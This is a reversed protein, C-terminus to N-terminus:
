SAEEPLIVELFEQRQIPLIISFCTNQHQSDIFIEGDHKEIIRKSISLGLGTGEGANKTTYFPELIKIAEEEDIGNGCDIVNIRVANNYYITEVRIWKSCSDDHTKIADFANNLLNLFVQSIQVPVCKLIVEEKCENIILQVGENQFRNRCLIKSDNIIKSLSTQKFPLNKGDQSISKMGMIIESIRDVMDNIKNSVNHVDDISSIRKFKSNLMKIVALPNNIEHAVGSAMEGLSALKSTALLKSQQEKIQKTRRVVREELEINLKKINKEMKRKQRIYAFAAVLSAFLSFFALLLVIFEIKYKSMLYSISRPANLFKVDNFNIRKADLRYRNFQIYDFVIFRENKLFPGNREKNFYKLLNKGSIIGDRYYDKVYGGLVGKDLYSTELSYIPASSFATLKEVFSKRDDSSEGPLSLESGIMLIKNKNIKEVFLFAEENDKFNIPTILLKLKSDVIAKKLGKSEKVSLGLTNIELADSHISKLQSLFSLYTSKETINIDVENNYSSGLNVIPVHNNHFKRLKSAIEVESDQLTIIAVLKKNNFKHKLINLYSSKYSDISILKGDVFSDVISIKPFQFKLINKLGKKLELVQTDGAPRSHLILLQNKLNTSGWVNGICLIFMFIIKVLPRSTIM